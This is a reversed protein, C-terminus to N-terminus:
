ITTSMILAYFFGNHRVYPTVWHEGCRNGASSGRKRASEMREKREIDQRKQTPLHPHEECRM